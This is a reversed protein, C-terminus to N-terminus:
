IVVKLLVGVFIVVVAFAAKIFFVFRMKSMECNCEEMFTKTQQLWRHSPISKGLLEHDALVDRFMKRAESFKRKRLFLSALLFKAGLSNSLLRTAEQTSGNALLIDAKYSLAFSLGIDHQVGTYIQAAREVLRMASEFDGLEKCVAAHTILVGAIDLHDKSEYFNEFLNLADAHFQCSKRLLENKKGLELERYACHLYIKGSDRFAAATRLDANKIQEVVIRRAEDVSEKAKGMEYRDSHFFALEGLREVLETEDGAGYVKTAINISEQMAQVSQEFKRLLKYTWSLTKLISSKLLLWEKDIKFSTMTLAKKLIRESEELLHLERYYFGLRSLLACYDIGHVLDLSLAIKHASELYQVRQNDTVGSIHYLCRAINVSMIVFEGSMNWKELNGHTVFSELHPSMLIQMTLNDPCSPEKLVKELSTNMSKVMNVFKDRRESEDFEADRENMTNKFANHMVQHFSITEVSPVGSCCHILLSCRSIEGKIAVRDSDNQGLNAQVYDSVSDLPVSNLSCYSLFDFTLRMIDSHKAIRTAALRAVVAMSRPYTYNNNKFTRYQLKGKQKHYNALFEEWPLNALQRDQKMQGVYTAACALSLPFYNLEKAVKVAFYDVDAGSIEQLLDLADDETMGKMRYMCAYPCSATVLSNDQSTVLVKGKGWANDGPRPFVSNLEEGYRMDDLILLWDGHYRQLLKRLEELYFRTLDMEQYNENKKALHKTMLVDPLSQLLSKASDANLTIVLPPDKKGNPKIKSFKKGFQRALETKGTGPAGTLFLTIVAPEDHLINEMSEFMTTMEDLECTRQKLEHYPKQPLITSLKSSAVTVHNNIEAAAALTGEEEPLTICNQNGVIVCRPNHINICYNVQENDYVVQNPKMEMNLSEYLGSIFFEIFFVRPKICSLLTTNHLPVHQVFM